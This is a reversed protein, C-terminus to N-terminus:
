KVEKYNFKRNIASSLQKEVANFIAAVHADFGRDPGLYYMALHTVPSPAIQSVFRIM